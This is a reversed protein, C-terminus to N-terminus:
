SKKQAEYAAKRDQYRRLKAASPKTAPTWRRLGTGVEIVDANAEFAFNVASKFSDFTANNVQYM